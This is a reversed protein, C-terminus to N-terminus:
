TPVGSADVSEIPGSPGDSAGSSVPGDGSEGGAGGTGGTTGSPPGGPGDLNGRGPSADGASAPATGRIDEPGFQNPKALCGLGLALLLWPAPSRMRSKM